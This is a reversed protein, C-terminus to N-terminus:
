NFQMDKIIANNYWKDGKVSGAFYYHVTIKTGIPLEKDLDKRLEFFALQGDEKKVGILRKTFPKKEKRDITNIDGVHEIVGDFSNTERNNM